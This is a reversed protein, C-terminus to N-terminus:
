ALARTFIDKVLRIRETVDAKSNGRGTFTELGHERFLDKTLRVVLARREVLRDHYGGCSALGVMVADYFAKSPRAKWLKQEVDWPHFVHEGYLTLATEVAGTFIRGLMEVDSESLSAARIMYLDLFGQMGRTYHQYHRLALFRLVLELDEMKQYFKKRAMAAPVGREEHRTYKPLGWARRFANNQSLEHLLDNVRGQHLCNRIEQRALAVGGTNLREFVLQRLLLADEDSSTSEKLLVISSLSRRDIGARVQAPLKSYTRGNLEPWSSLGTLVLRDEYFERIATVRQQGDMIEYQNFAKEYLFIAPVPINIIFSEILKSQRGADWRARRQYFPTLDMYGPRRLATVFNPLRERNTETIIRQEGRIYKEDIHQDSM